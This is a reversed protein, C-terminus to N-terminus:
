LHVVHVILRKTEGGCGAVNIDDVLQQRQARIDPGVVVRHTMTNNNQSAFSSYHGHRQLSQSQGAVVAM